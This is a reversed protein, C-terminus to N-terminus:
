RYYALDEDHELTLSDASADLKFRPLGMAMLLALLAILILVIKPHSIVAQIYSQLLRNLM